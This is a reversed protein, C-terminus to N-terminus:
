AWGSPWWRPIKWDSIRIACDIRDRALDVLGTPYTWRSASIRYLRQFGPRSSVHRRGFGAPASLRLHGRARAVAPSRRNVERLDLLIRQCDEYFASGERTILAIRRTTRVLLKM